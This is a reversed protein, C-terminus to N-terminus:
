EPSIPQEEQPLGLSMSLARMPWIRDLCVVSHPLLNELMLFCFLFPQSKRLGKRWGLLRQEVLGVRGLQFETLQAPLPGIGELAHDAFGDIERTGWGYWTVVACEAILGNVGHHCAGFLVVGPCLILLLGVEDGRANAGVGFGIGILHLQELAPQVVGVRLSADIGAGQGRLGVLHVSVPPLLGNGFLQCM